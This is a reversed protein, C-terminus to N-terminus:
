LLAGTYSGDLSVSDTLLRLTTRVAGTTKSGVHAHLLTECIATHFSHDDTSCQAHSHTIAGSMGHPFLPFFQADTGCSRVEVCLNRAQGQEEENRATVLQHNKPLHCLM